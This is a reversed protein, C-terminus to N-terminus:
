MKETPLFSLDMYYEYKDKPTVYVTIREPLYPTPDFFIPESVFVYPLQQGEERLVSKIKYAGQLKKGTESDERVSFKDEEISFDRLEIKVGASVLENLVEKRKFIDFLKYSGVLFLPLGIGIMILRVVWVSQIASEPSPESVFAAMMFCSLGSLLFIFWWFRWDKNWTMFRTRAKASLQFYGVVAFVFALLLAVLFGWIPQAIVLHSPDNQQYIIKVTAGAHIFVPISYDDSEMSQSLPYNLTTSRLNADKETVTLYLKLESGAANSEVSDIMASASPWTLQQYIETGGVYLIGIFFGLGFLLFILGILKSLAWDVANSVKSFFGTLTDPFNSKM